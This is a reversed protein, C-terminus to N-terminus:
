GQSHLLVEHRRPLHRLLKRRGERVSQKRNMNDLMTTAFVWGKGMM